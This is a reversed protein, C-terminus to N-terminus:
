DKPSAKDNPTPSPVKDKKELENHDQSDDNDSQTIKQFENNVVKGDFTVPKIGLLGLIFGFLLLGFVISFTIIIFRKFFKAFVREKTYIIEENSDSINEDNKDLITYTKNDKNYSLKQKPKYSM